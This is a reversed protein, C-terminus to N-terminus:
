YMHLTLLVWESYMSPIFTNLIILSDTNVLLLEFQEDLDSVFDILEDKSSLLKPVFNDMFMALIIIEPNVKHLNSHPDLLEQNIVDYEGFIVEPKIKNHILHYKIYPEIMEITFNRLFYIKISQQFKYDATEYERVQSVVDTLNPIQVM